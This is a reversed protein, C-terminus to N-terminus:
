LMRNRFQRVEIDNPIPLLGSARRSTSLMLHVAKIADVDGAFIASCNVPYQKHYEPRQLSNPAAAMISDVGQVSSTIESDADVYGHSGDEEESEGDGDGELGANVDDDSHWDEVADAAINTEADAVIFYWLNHKIIM